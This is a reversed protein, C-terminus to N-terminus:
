TRSTRCRRGRPPVRRDPRRGQQDRGALPPGSRRSRRRARARHAAQVDRRRRGCDDGPRDPVQRGPAAQVDLDDRRREAELQDRAGSCRSTKSNDRAHPVRRLHRGDRARGPGDFTHPEIGRGAAPHHSASATRQEGSRPASHRRVRAAGRRGRGAAAGVVPVSMGLVSARRILERRDFEGTIFEDILTNEFPGAENQRYDELKRRAERDM